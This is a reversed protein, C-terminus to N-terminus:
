LKKSYKYDVHTVKGNQWNIEQKGYGMPPNDLATLKGNSVIYVGNEMLDVGVIMKQSDNKNM